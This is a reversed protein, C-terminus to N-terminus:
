LKKLRGFYLPNWPKKVYRNLAKKIRWFVFTKLSKKYLSKLSKQDDFYM